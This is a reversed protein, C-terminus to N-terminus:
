GGVKKTQNYNMGNEWNTLDASQVIEIRHTMDSVQNILGKLGEAREQSSLPIYVGGKGKRTAVIPIKHKFVLTNIVSHMSRADLGTADCMSKLARRNDKGRPIMSLVASEIITLEKNM